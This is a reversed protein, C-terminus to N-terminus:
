LAGGVTQFLARVLRADKIGPASEVGGALDIGYPKMKMVAGVNAPNIGGAVFVHSPARKGLLKWEFTKGTGGRGSDLLFLRHMGPKPLLRPLKRASGGVRRVRIVKLGAKEVLECTAERAGHLQM